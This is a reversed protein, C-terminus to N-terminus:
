LKELRAEVSSIINDISKLVDNCFMTKYPEISQEFKRLPYSPITQIACVSEQKDLEERAWKLELLYSSLREYVAVKEKYESVEEKTM